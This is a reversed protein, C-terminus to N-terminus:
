SALYVHIVSMPFNIQRCQARKNLGFCVQAGGEGEWEFQKEQRRWDKSTNLRKLVNFLKFHARLLYHYHAIKNSPLLDCFIFCQVLSIYIQSKLAKLKTFCKSVM